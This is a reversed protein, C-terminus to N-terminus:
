RENASRETLHRVVGILEKLPVPREFVHFIKLAHAREILQDAKAQAILVFPIHRHEPSALMRARIQFADFQPLYADAIIVEPQYREILEWAQDGSTAVVAAVNNTALYERLYTSSVPDGDMILAPTTEIFEPDSEALVGNGGRRELLRLRAGAIANMMQAPPREDTSQLETSGVLAVSVTVSQAFRHQAAVADVLEHALSQAVSVTEELVLLFVPGGWRFLIVSPFRETLFGALDKIISDGIVTGATRNIEKMKDIQIFACTFPASQENMSVIFQEAYARAYLGTFSDLLAADNAFVITSQLDLNDSRLREVEAIVTELRETDDTMRLGPQNRLMSGFRPCLLGTDEAVAVLADALSPGYDGFNRAYAVQPAGLTEAVAPLKRGMSSAARGTFVCGSDAHVVCLTGPSEPVLVFKLGSANESGVYEVPKYLYRFPGTVGCAAVELACRWDGIIEGQFGRKRWRELASAAFPSSDTLIISALAEPQVIERVADIFEDGNLAAGADICVYRGAVYVVYINHRLIGGRIAIGIQWVDPHVAEVVAARSM